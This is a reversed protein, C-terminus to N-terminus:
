QELTYNLSDIADQINEYVALFKGAHIFTEKGNAVLPYLESNITLVNWKGDLPYVMYRANEYRKWHIPFRECVRIHDGIKVANEWLQLSEEGQKVSDICTEIYCMCVDLSINFGEDGICNFSKILSNVQFGNFQAFGGTDIDSVAKLPKYLENYLETSIDGTSLLYNLVLICSAPLTGDHHHDFLKKSPNYAGGVDIVWVDDSNLDEETINRTRKIVYDDEKDRFITSLLLAVAFVEDAHFIGNHTIIKTKV